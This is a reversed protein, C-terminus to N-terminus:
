KPYDWALVDYAEDAPNSEHKAIVARARRYPGSRAPSGKMDRHAEAWACFERLVALLEDRQTRLATFQKALADTPNNPM